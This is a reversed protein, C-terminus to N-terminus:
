PAHGARARRADLLAWLLYLGAGVNIAMDAVNFIPFWQFDIFDVVAGRLWADGRFLRDIVNGIAGGVIFGAAATTMPSTSKAVYVMVVVAVVIAIAGIIAGAGEGASFAMGRNFTLNWQLTWWVPRPQSPHLTSVAWHKTIQDVIVIAAAIAFAIQRAREITSAAASEDAGADSM